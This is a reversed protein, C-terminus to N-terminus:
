LRIRQGTRSAPNSTAITLTYTHHPKPAPLTLTIQRQNGHLTARATHGALKLTIGLIPSLARHLPQLASAESSAVARLGRPNPM